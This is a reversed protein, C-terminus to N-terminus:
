KLFDVLTPTVVDQATKLAAEFAAQATAFDVSTKAIDTDRTQSLLDGTTEQLQALRDLNFEFRNQMDGMRSVAASITARNGDLQQLDTTRLLDLDAPAGSTLHTVITRLNALLGSSSDGFVSSGVENVDVQVGPAIERTIAGTNGAFADSAGLAFPRTLSASGAFIYDDGLKSNGQIKISDILGTIENAIAQRAAPDMTDSAGAIVLERARRSLDVVQTLASETTVSWANAQNLNSKYQKLSDTQSLLAVSRTARLPDDSPRSIEYGSSLKERADLVRSASNYVNRLLTRHLQNNTIRDSM